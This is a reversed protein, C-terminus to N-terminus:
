GEPAFSGPLSNAVTRNGSESWPAFLDPLSFARYWVICAAVCDCFCSRTVTDAQMADQM